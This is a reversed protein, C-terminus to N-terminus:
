TRGKENEADYKKFLEEFEKLRAVADHLRPWQNEDSDGLKPRWGEVWKAYREYLEAVIRSRMPLQKQWDKWDWDIDVVSDTQHDHLQIKIAEGYSDSHLYPGAPSTVMLEGKEGNITWVLGPTGKFPPGMRFSVALTADEAINAKGSALRGHVALLDPVNSSISKKQSGDDGIVGLTPRQIQMRAEFSDFEGLVEHVYDITHAYAITVQNGGYKRDAFYTLGQPFADRKLLNGFARIESSLVRGIRGSVLVEKLKLTIPAVRGQLGIISNDIRQNGTLSVARELNEALPWEIFVAKGARLSPETTPIHVDVRTNCVVLDVDPDAALANPDGYCKVSPDLNFTKKAAQAAEVSSNLLAVLEYHSRGLPSLLYPLHGEEAWSVKATASLGILAVRIPAM